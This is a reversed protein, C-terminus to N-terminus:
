FVYPLIKYPVRETYKDWDSGYKSRCRSDDRVSRDILLITLYVTYFFPMFSSFGAGCSWFFSSLIEPIYHFHRSLGWWGSCLLISKRTMGDAPTYTATIYEAPAGWIECKGKAKRFDVRMRDADYNAWICFMGLLIILQATVPCDDLYGHHTVMYVSMSPYVTPLYVLCGWCIYYGARDQMIDISNFYGTEWWFFKFIYILQLTASTMNTLPVVGNNRDAAAAACSITAIAWYVMGFRCNTLQKVDIGFIQPYLETGWFLDFVINGSVGSDKGTPAVNGKIYLLVVFGLALYNLGNLISELEDYVISLNYFNAVGGTVFLAVHIIFAPVGNAIYEPVHGTPTVPGTVVHGPVLKMLVISVALFVGIFKWGLMSIDGPALFGQMLAKWPDVSVEDEWFETFSGNRHKIIYWLVLILQGYIMTAATMVTRRLFGSVFAGDAIAENQDTWNAAAGLKTEDITTEHDEQDSEEQESPPRAARTPTRGKISGRTTVMNYHVLRHNGDRSPSASTSSLCRCPCM